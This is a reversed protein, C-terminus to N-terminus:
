PEGEVTLTLLTAGNSVWPNRPGEELPLRQLTELQYVGAVLNYTGPEASPPVVIRYSDVVVEGPAWAITPYDGDLPKKDHQALPRPDGERIFHTFITYSARAPRLAQWYLRFTLEQGPKVRQPPPDMGILAIEDGFVAHMPVQPTINAPTRSALRLTRVLGSTPQGEVTQAPLAQGTWHNFFGLEVRMLTPTRATPAVRVRYRDVIIENDQWLRTPYTGWGPFTQLLGVEERERGLLRVTFTYDVPLDGVKSMYVTLDFTEGPYTTIQPIEVAWVRIREGFVLNVPRASLPIEAQSIREPRAYAPAIWRTPAVLALGLLGLPLVLAWAPRVRRPILRTWGLVLFLALVGVVPFLFGEQLFASQEPRPLIGALLFIIALPLLLMAWARTRGLRLTGRLVGYTLGALIFLSIYDLLRYARMGMPVNFWGFLGWFSWRLFRWVDSARTLSPVTAAGTYLGSYRLGTVDGYLLWNRVYWWGAVGGALLFYLILPGCPCRYRGARRAYVLVVGAGLIVLGVGGLATLASLGTVVGLLAVHKLGAPRMLLRLMLLITLTTLFVFLNANTVSSSLFIFQPIFAVTAAATLRLYPADPRLERAIAYTTLITGVGILLTFWRALHVALPLDRYPWNERDTHILYNKNGPALPDGVNHYPNRWLYDATRQVDLTRLLPALLVYYLPPQHGEEAWLSPVDPDQVPLRLTDAIHKAYFFHANEHFAEFMPVTVSYYIGLLLFLCVIGALALKEKSVRM